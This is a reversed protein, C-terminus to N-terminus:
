ACPVESGNTRFCRESLKAGAPSYDIKRLHWGLDIRDVPEDNLGYATEATLKGLSNREFRVRARGTVASMVRQGEVGFLSFEVENGLRDFARVLRFYSTQRPNGDAAFLREELIEGRPGLEFEYRAVGADDDAPQGEPGLNIQQTRDGRANYEYRLGFRGDEDPAPEGSPGFYSERTKLRREDYDYRYIAVNGDGVEVTPELDAGLSVYEVVNGADDHTQRWGHLGSALTMPAAGADFYQVRTIRGFPDVSRMQISWGEEGAVLRRDNDLYRYQIVHGRADREYEVVPAGEPGPALAGAADRYFTASRRGWADYHIEEQALGSPLLVGTIDFSRYLSAKGFSNYESTYSAYGDFTQPEEDPGLYRREVERGFADRKITFHKGAVDIIEGGPGKPIQQVLKGQSDRVYDLGFMGDRNPAPQGDPGLYIQSAVHGNQDFRNTWKHIREDRAIVPENELGFFAASLRQNVPTDPAAAKWQYDVRHYGDNRVVPEASTGFYREQILNGFEDVKVRRIHYGQKQFVPQGQAGLCSTSVSVGKSDREVLVAHCGDEARAVPAEDPGYYRVAVSYGAADYDRDTRSVGDAAFTRQGDAGFVDHRLRNGTEDYVAKWGHVGRADVRPAGDAGFRWAQAINGAEDRVYTERAYGDATEAAEGTTGRYALAEREGDADRLIDEHAWGSATLTAAGDAALASRGVPRGAADYAYRYGYAYDANAAPTGPSSFFRVELDRGREAGERGREISVFKIGNGLRSCGIVAEERIAQLGGASYEIRELPNGFQDLVEEGAIERGDYTFRVACARAVNCEFEFADGTFSRLATAEESACQGSGNVREVRLLPGFAGRRVFRLSVERQSATKADIPSVERWVGFERTYEEAYTHHPLLSAWAAGTASLTLFASAAGALLRRGNRRRRDRDQLAGANVSILGAVLKLLANRFGDKGKRTDAAVLELAGGDEPRFAKPFSARTADQGNIEAPAGPAIIAFIRSGRGLGIFYDIEKQVWPSAAAGPSCIVILAASARLAAELNEGLDGAPLEERDRFVPYVRNKRGAGTLDFAGLSKPIHYRELGRHLRRAFDKDKSSYSIFAAYRFLEAM